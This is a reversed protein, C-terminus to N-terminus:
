ESQHALWEGEEVLHPKAALTMFNGKVIFGAYAERFFIPTKPPNTNNQQTQNDSAMNQTLSPSPPAAPINPPGLPSTGYASPSSTNVRSPPQNQNQNRAPNAGRGFARRRFVAVGNAQLGMNHMLIDIDLQVGLRNEAEASSERPPEPGSGATEWLEASAPRPMNALELGSGSTHKRTIQPQQTLGPQNSTAPTFYRNM